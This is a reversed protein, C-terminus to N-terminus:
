KIVFIENPGLRAADREHQEMLHPIFAVCCFEATQVTDQWGPWRLNPIIRENTSDMVCGDKIFQKLMLHSAGPCYHGRGVCTPCLDYDDDNCISCHFHEDEISYKCNDCVRDSFFRLIHLSQGGYFACIKDGPRLGPHAIGFRGGKTAFFSHGVMWRHYTSCSSVRDQENSNLSYFYEVRNSSNLFALMHHYAMEANDVIRCDGFLSMLFQRPIWSDSVESVRLTRQALCLAKRYVDSVIAHLPHSVRAATSSENRYSDGDLLKTDEVVELVEDVVFGCVRLLNDLEATYMLKSPHNMIADLRAASNKDDERSTLVFQLTPGHSAIPLNWWGDLEMACVPQGSLDPCWSPLNYVDRTLSRPIALIAVSHWEKVVAKAFGVHTRWYETRGFNSYDVLSSLQEQLSQSFLGGIAWVRDVREQVNRSRLAYLLLPINVEDIQLFGEQRRKRHYQITRSESFALHKLLLRDPSLSADFCSPIIFAPVGFWGEEVFAIFDDADIFNKGCLLTAKTALIIEQFTWLRRFWEHNMVSFLGTWFDHGEPPWGEGRWGVDIHRAVPSWDKALEAVRPFDTMFALTEPTPLWMWVIVQTASAYISPMLKVQTEREKPDIQNICIADIWLPRTTNPRYLRLHLIMEHATPSIRLLGGNCDVNVSAPARGWVYSVADYDPKDSLVAPYTELRLEDKETNWELRLLRFEGPKLQQDEYPSTQPAPALGSVATEM